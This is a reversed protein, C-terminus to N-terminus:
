NKPDFQRSLIFILLLFNLEIDKGPTDSLIEEFHLQPDNRNRSSSNQAIQPLAQEEPINDDEFENHDPPIEPDFEDDIPADELGPLEEDDGEEGFEEMDVPNLEVFEEPHFNQDFEDDALQVLEIPDPGNFRLFDEEEDDEDEEEQAEAVIQANM